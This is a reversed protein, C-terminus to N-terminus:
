YEEKREKWIGAIFDEMQDDELAKPQPPDSLSLISEALKRFSGSAASAPFAELVTKAQLEAAIIEDFCPIEGCIRAGVQVAYRGAANRDIFSSRHNHILGGFSLDSSERFHGVSHLINNAAYLSMFESSTVIYVEDVFGDRMPVSFGGCVVDGLVDYIIIDWSQEFVKHYKLEELATIIGRGACGVGAKPGGSEVCTVGAYGTFLLSTLGPESNEQLVQLVSPIKRGLLTRSSDAKPDCGILLVRLGQEAMAAAVNASVTSKGIGGKGYFAIRKM